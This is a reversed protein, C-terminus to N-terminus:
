TQDLELKNGLCKHSIPYSKFLVKVVHLLNALTSSNGNVLM